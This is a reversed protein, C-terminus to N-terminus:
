YLSSTSLNMAQRGSPLRTVVPRSPVMAPRVADMGRAELHPSNKPLVV